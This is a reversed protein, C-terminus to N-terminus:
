AGATRRRAGRSQRRSRFSAAAEGIRPPVRLVEDVIATAEHRRGNGVLDDLQPFLQTLEVRERETLEPVLVRQAEKTELKLVGGGYARGEVEASLIWVSGLSWAALV